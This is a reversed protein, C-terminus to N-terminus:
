GPRRRLSALGARARHRIAQLAAIRDDLQRLKREYGALAAACPPAGRRGALLCALVARADRLGFGQALLTQICAVREVADEAFDRYGNAARGAAVLGLREYHRISRPSAGTRRSLEGIRM